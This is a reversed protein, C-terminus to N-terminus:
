MGLFHEDLPLIIPAFSWAETCNDIMSTSSFPRASFVDFGYVMDPYMRLIPSDSSLRFRSEIRSPIKVFSKLLYSRAYDDTVQVLEVFVLLKQKSLANTRYHCSRFDLLIFWLFLVSSIHM